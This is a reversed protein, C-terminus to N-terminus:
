PFLTNIRSNVVGVARGEVEGIDIDGRVVACCVHVSMSVRANDVSFVNPQVTRARDRM